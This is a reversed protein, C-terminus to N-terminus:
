EPAVPSNVSKRTAPQAKKSVAKQLDKEAAALIEVLCKNWGKVLEAATNSELATESRYKELSVISIGGGDEDLLLFSIAMVARPQKEDRFDGYLATVNAELTYDADAGSRADVVQAFVGSAGLWDRAEETILLAPSTLFENYFDAEYRMEGTRYVLGTEEFRSSIRFQRVKAVGAGLPAAAKGPRSVDLVYQQKEPYEKVPISCGCVAALALGAALTALCTRADRM